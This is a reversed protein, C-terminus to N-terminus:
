VASVGLRLRDRHGDAVAAATGGPHPDGACASLPKWQTGFSAAALISSSHGCDSVFEGAFTM